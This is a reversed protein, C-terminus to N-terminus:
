KWKERYKERNNSLNPSLSTREGSPGCGGVKGSGGGEYRVSIEERQRPRSANARWRLSEKLSNECIRPRIRRGTEAWRAPIVANPPSQSASVLAFCPFKVCLRVCNGGFERVLVTGAKLRRCRRDGAQKEGCAELLRLTAKDHSGFAKEQLRWALVRLLLDRWLGKPPNRRFEAAWAARLAGLPLSSLREIETTIAEPSVSQSTKNLASVM